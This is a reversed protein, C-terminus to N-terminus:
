RWDVYSLLSLSDFGTPRTTRRFRKVETRNQDIADYLTHTHTHTYTISHSHAILRIFASIASKSRIIGYIGYFLM